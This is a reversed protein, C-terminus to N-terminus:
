LLTLWFPWERGWHLSQSAGAVRDHCASDGPPERGSSEHPIEEPQGPQQSAKPLGHGGFMGYNITWPTSTQVRWPGIRPALLPRFMKGCGSILRRPRTPLLHTRSSSGNRVMSSLRTLLYWVEKYCMRKICEPVLKWVERAFLTLGQLSVGCWVM